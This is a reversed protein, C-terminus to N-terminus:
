CLNFSLKPLCVQLFKDVTRGVQGVFKAMTIPKRKSSEDRIPIQRKFMKYGPWQHQHDVFGFVHFWWFGVLSVAIRIHTTTKPGLPAPDNADRLVHHRSNISAELSLGLVGDRSEFFVPMQLEAREVYQRFGIASEPSWMKQPVVTGRIMIGRDLLWRGPLNPFRAAIHPPVSDVCFFCGGSGTSPLTAHLPISTSQLLNLFYQEAARSRFTQSIYGDVLLTQPASFPSFSSDPSRVYLLWGLRVEVGDM